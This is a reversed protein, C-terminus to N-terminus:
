QLKQIKDTISNAKEINGQHRYLDAAQRWDAIAGQQQGLNSKVTGRNSYAQAYNPNLNIAQIYDAIAASNNKLSSQATGRNNYAQAYKPNLRIAQTYDAIAAKFNGLESQAIGRNNYAQAHNPKLRIAQSYDSLAAKLNDLDSQVVGRNFYAEASDANIQLAQTYDALAAKKDGLDSYTIGRNNYARSHQSDVQLAQTFDAIAAQKDGLQRKVLGRNNYADALQPNLKLATTYNAIAAKLNNLRRQTIGRKFYAEDSEPDLEIAATYHQLALQYQKQSLLQDGKKLQAQVRASAVTPPSQRNLVPASFLKPFLYGVSGLILFSLSIIAWQKSILRKKGWNQLVTLIQSSSHSYVLHTSHALPKVAAMVVAATKNKALLLKPSLLPVAQSLPLISSSNPTALPPQLDQLVADVSPYRLTTDKQLLRSLVKQLRFSLPQDLYDQWNELWSYGYETWLSYPSARSVLHFCSVGLGFLDSSPIAIGRKMQELPAYGPSGILTGPHNMATQTILKAVGFDILMHQGGNPCQMINDLKIDRHVVGREHIFKLIPLLDLLLDWIRKESQPGQAELLQLLNKGEVFQQVLYLYGEEEFYALLAPIQPHTGLQQLQQAEGEFLQIAKQTLKANPSQYTFQKVVCRENLMDTDHALYTEGFGGRGLLKIIRYRNRLLLSLPSGCQQCYQNGDSNQPQTCDPNLCCIM